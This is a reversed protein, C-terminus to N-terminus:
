RDILPPSLKKEDPRCLCRCRVLVAIVFCSLSRYSPVPLSEEISYVLFSSALETPRSAQKPCTTHQGDAAASYPAKKKARKQGEVCQVLRFIMMETKKATKCCCCCCCCCCCGFWDKMFGFGAWSTHSPRRPRRLIHYYLHHPHHPHHHHACYLPYLYVVRDEVVRHTASYPLLLLLLLLLAPSPFHLAVHFVFLFLTCIPPVIDITLSPSLSKKQKDHPPPLATPGLLRSPWTNNQSCSLKKQIYMFVPMCVNM